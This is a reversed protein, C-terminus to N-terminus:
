CESKRSRAALLRKIRDVILQPDYPKTMGM